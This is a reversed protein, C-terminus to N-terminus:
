ETLLAYFHGLYKQVNMGKRIDAHNVCWGEPVLCVWQYGPLPDEAGHFANNSFVNIKAKIQDILGENGGRSALYIGIPPFSPYRSVYVCLHIYDPRFQDPLPFYRVGIFDGTDNLFAERPGFECGEFSSLWRDILAAEQRKLPTINGAKNITATQTDFGEPIDAARYRAFDSAPIIKGAGTVVSNTGSPVLTSLPTGWEVEQVEADIVIPIRKAM